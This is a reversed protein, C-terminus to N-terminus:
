YSMAELEVYFYLDADPPIAPPSGAGGYGLASPIFLSAKSGVPLSLFGEDWGKIVAGRGVRFSFPQGREFSNDFMSGDSQLMGYYQANILRDKTPREGSGKEHIIYAVGNETYKLDLEENKFGRLTETTLTKIQPLKARTAAIQAHNKQSDEAIRKQNETDSLIEKLVLIYELHMLDQYGADLDPISDRPVIVGVSDNISMQILAAPIPNQTMAKSSLGPIKLSPMRKQNRYSQLLEKKDNLIDMQFYVYEGIVPKAEDTKNYFILEYDNAKYSTSGDQCSKCVVILSLFIIYRCKM